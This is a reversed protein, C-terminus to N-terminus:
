VRMYTILLRVSDCSSVHFCMGPWRDFMKAIIYRQKDFPLRLMPDRSNNTVITQSLSLIILIIYFVTIDLPWTLHIEVYFSVCFQLDMFHCPNFLQHDDTANVRVAMNFCSTDIGQKDRLLDQIQKLTVSIPYPKSSRVWVERHSFFLTLCLSFLGKLRACWM